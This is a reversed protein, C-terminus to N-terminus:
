SLYGFATQCEVIADTEAGLVDVTSLNLAGAEDDMGDYEQRDMKEVLAL